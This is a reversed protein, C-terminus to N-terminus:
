QQVNPLYNVYDKLSEIIEGVDKRAQDAFGDIKDLYLYKERVPRIVRLLPSKTWLGRYDTMVWGFFSIHATGYNAMQPNKDNPDSGPKLKQAYSLTLDAGLYNAAYKYDMEISSRLWCAVFTNGTPNSPPVHIYRAEYVLYGKDQLINYLKKYLLDINWGTHDFGIGLMTHYRTCPENWNIPTRGIVM